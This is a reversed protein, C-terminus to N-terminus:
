DNTAILYSSLSPSLGGYEGDHAGQRDTKIRCACLARSGLLNREWATVRSNFSWQIFNVDATAVVWLSWEAGNEPGAIQLNTFVIPNLYWRTVKNTCSLIHINSKQVIMWFRVLKKFVYGWIRVFLEYM